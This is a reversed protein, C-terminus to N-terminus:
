NDSGPVLKREADGGPVVSRDGGREPAEAANAREAPILQDRVITHTLRHLQM